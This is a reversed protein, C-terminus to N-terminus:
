SHTLCPSLCRSQIVCAGYEKCGLAQFLVHTVAPLVFKTYEVFRRLVVWASDAHKRKMFAYVGLFLCSITLHGLTWLMLRDQFRSIFCGSGPIALSLDFSLFSIANIIAAFIPPLSQSGDTAAHNAVVFSMTQGPAFTLPTFPSFFYTSGFDMIYM